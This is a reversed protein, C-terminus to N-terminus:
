RVHDSGTVVMLKGEPVEMSCLQDVILKIAQLKNAHVTLTVSKNQPSAIGGYAPVGSQIGKFTEKSM